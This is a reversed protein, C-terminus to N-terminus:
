GFLACVRDSSDYDVLTPIIQLYDAVEQEFM